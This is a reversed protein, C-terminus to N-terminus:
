PQAAAQQTQKIKAKLATTDKTYRMAQQYEAIAATSQGMAALADGTGEYAAEMDPGHKVLNFVHKYLGIADTFHGADRHINGSVVYLHTNNPQLGIATRMYKFAQDYDGQGAYVNALDANISSQAAKYPAVTIAMKYDNYADTYQKATLYINGRDEYLSPDNPSLTIAKDMAKIADAFDNFSNFGNQAISVYTDRVPPAVRMAQNYDLQAQGNMGLSVEAAARLYYLNFNTPDIPIAKNYEMIAENPSGLTQYCGGLSVYANVYIGNEQIAKLYLPIAHDCHGANQLVNATNYDRVANAPAVSSTPTSISSAQNLSCGALTIAVLALLLSTFGVSTLGWRARANAKGILRPVITNDMTKESEVLTKNVKM